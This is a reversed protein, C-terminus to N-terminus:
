VLNNNIKNPNKSNEYLRIPRELDCRLWQWWRM